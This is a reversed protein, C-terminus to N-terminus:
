VAFACSLLAPTRSLGHFATAAFSSIACGKRPVLPIATLPRLLVAMAVGYRLGTVAIYPTTIGFQPGGIPDLM